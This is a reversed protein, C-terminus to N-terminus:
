SNEVTRTRPVSYENSILSLLPPVYVTINVLGCSALGLGLASAKPPLASVLAMFKPRLALALKGLGLDENSAPATNRYNTFKFSM